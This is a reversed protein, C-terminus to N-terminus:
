YTLFNRSQVFYCLLENIREFNLHCSQVECIGVPLLPRVVLHHWLPTQPHSLIKYEVTVLVVHFLAIPLNFDSCCVIFYVVFNIHDSENIAFKKSDIAPFEAYGVDLKKRWACRSHLPEAVAVTYLSASSALGLSAYAVSLHTRTTVGGGSELAGARKWSRVHVIRASSTWRVQRDICFACM